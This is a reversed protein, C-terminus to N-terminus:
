ETVAAFTTYKYQLGEDSSSLTGGADLELIGYFEDAGTSNRFRNWQLLSSKHPVAVDITVDVQAVVVWYSSPKTGDINSKTSSNRLRQPLTTAPSSVSSGEIYNVIEWNANNWFDVLYYTVDVDLTDMMYEVYGDNVITHGSGNRQSQPTGGAGLDFVQTPLTGSASAFSSASVDAIKNCRIATDLMCYLTNRLVTEDLYTIGLSAPTLYYAGNAGMNEISTFQDSAGLKYVGSTNYPSLMLGMRSLTPYTITSMNFSGSRTDKAVSTTSVLSGINNYFNRFDATPIRSSVNGYMREYIYREVNVSGAFSNYAGQTPIVGGNDQMYFAIMYMNGSTFSSGNWVTMMAEQDASSTYYSSNSFFEEASLVASISADASNSVTSYISAIKDKLTQYDTFINVCMLLFANIIFILITTKKM